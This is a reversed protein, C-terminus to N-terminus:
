LLSRLYPRSKYGKAAYAKQCYLIELDIKILTGSKSGFYYGFRIVSIAVLKM